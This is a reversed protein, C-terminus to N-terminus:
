HNELESRIEESKDKCYNITRLKRDLDNREVTLSLLVMNSSM